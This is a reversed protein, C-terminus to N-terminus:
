TLLAQHPMCLKLSLTDTNQEKNLQNPNKIVKSWSKRTTPIKKKLHLRTTEIYLQQKQQIMKNNIEKTFFYECFLHRRAAFNHVLSASKSYLDEKGYTLWMHPPTIMWTNKTSATKMMYLHKANYFEFTWESRGSTASAVM